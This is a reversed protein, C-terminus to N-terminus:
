GVIVVNYTTGTTPATAFSVTVVSASTRVIDVEIEAYQTDPTVSTQYVQVNVDQTGRNHTVAFSTSASNGSITGVYKKAVAFGAVSAASFNPSSSTTVYGQSTVYSQTAVSAGGISLGAFNGVGASTISATTTTSSSNIILGGAQLTDYTASAFNITTDPESTVGSFLKWIGDSADRVLGAHQYTGNNFSSVIGIDLVNAPNNHALYLLADNLVSNSSSITVASGAIFVSGSVSLNGGVYLNKAVGAGGTVVFPAVTTSTADTADSVTISASTFNTLGAITTATGGLGIATNGVTVNSASLKSVAISASANIDANLITGNAIMTSTVTGTDTTYVGNTVATATGNFTGYFNTACATTLSVTSPLSLTISGSSPTVTIQSATGYINVSGSFGNVYTTSSSGTGVPVFASGTYVNLQNNTSDFWLQGKGYATPASTANHVLANLLQNGSLDINVLFKKAM